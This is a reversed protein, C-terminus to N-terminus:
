ARADSKAPSKANGLLGATFDVLDGHERAIEVLRGPEGARQCLQATTPCTLASEPIGALHEAAVDIALDLRGVRVLLNVLVQAPMTPDSGLGAENTDLKSRFWAIASDVEQGLLARLYVRHDDFVRQFPPPGEFQLRPALSRGYETLDVALVLIAADTVGNSNRVVAALHSTDIHYSDETFLWERGRILEAISSGEAPVLQGRGVIEARLNSALEKHLHSILREACGIRTADDNPPLQEYASIAPCTGYHELILDFGRRPNVGHNFAVEIIAGLQQDNDSPQYANIANAVPEIEGIARFYAFATPIDGKELYRSGVLRIAEVYREEFRSRQPESIQSLPGSAILPLGLEHRSKLLLADLMARYDGAAGLQGILEDIAASPGGNRLANEISTFGGRGDDSALDMAGIEASEESMARGGGELDDM